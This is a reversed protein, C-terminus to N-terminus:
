RGPKKARHGDNLLEQRDVDGHAASLPKGPGYGNSSLDSEVRDHAEAFALAKALLDPPGHLYIANSARRVEAGPLGDGREMRLSPFAGRLSLRLTEPDTFSCSYVALVESWATAVSSTEAGEPRRPTPKSALPRAAKNLRSALAQTEPNNSPPIQGVLPPPPPVITLEAEPPVATSRGSDDADVDMDEDNPEIRNIEKIQIQVPAFGNPDSAPASRLPTLCLCGIAPGAILTLIM